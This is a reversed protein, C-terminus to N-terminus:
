PSGFGVTKNFCVKHKSIFSGIHYKHQFYLRGLNQYILIVKGNWNAMQPSYVLKLRMCIHHYHHIEDVFVPTFSWCLWSPLYKRWTSLFVVLQRLNIFPSATEFLETIDFFLRLCPKLCNRVILARLSGVNPSESCIATPFQLFFYIERKDLRVGRFICSINPDWIRPDRPPELGLGFLTTKPTGFCPTDCMRDGIVRDWGRTFSFGSLLLEAFALIHRITFVFARIFFHRAWLPHKCFLILQNCVMACFQAGFDAFFQLPFSKPLWVRTISQKREHPALAHWCLYQLAMKSCVCLHVCAHTSNKQSAGHRENSSRSTAEYM